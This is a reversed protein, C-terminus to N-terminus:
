YALMTPQRFDDWGDFDLAVQATDVESTMVLRISSFFGLFLSLSLSSLPTSLSFTPHCFSFPVLTSSRLMKSNIYFGLRNLPFVSFFFFM